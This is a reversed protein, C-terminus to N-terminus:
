ELDRKWANRDQKAKQKKPVFATSPRGGTKRVSAVIEKFTIKKMRTTSRLRKRNDLSKRKTKRASRM